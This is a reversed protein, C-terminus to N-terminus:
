PKTYADGVCIFFGMIAFIIVTSYWGAHYAMAAGAATVVSSGSM